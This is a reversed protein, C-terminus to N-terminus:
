LCDPYLWLGSRVRSRHQRSAADDAEDAIATPNLLTKRWKEKELWHVVHNYASELVATNPMAFCSLTDYGGAAIASKFTDLATSRM